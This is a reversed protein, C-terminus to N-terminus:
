NSEILCTNIYYLKFVVYTKPIRNRDIVLASILCSEKTEEESWFAYMPFGIEDYLKPNDWLTTILVNSSDCMSWVAHFDIINRNALICNANLCLGFIHSPM